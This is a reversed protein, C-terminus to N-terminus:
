NFIKLSEQVQICDLNHNSLFKQIGTDKSIERKAVLPNFLYALSIHHTALICNYFITTLPQIKLSRGLSHAINTWLSIM